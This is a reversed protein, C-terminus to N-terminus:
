WHKLALGLTANTTKRWGFNAIQNAYDESFKKQRLLSHIFSHAITRLKSKLPHMSTPDWPLKMERVVWKPLIIPKETCMRILQPFWVASPFFSVICIAKKVKDQLIKWLVKHIVSFPSFIFPTFQSCDVLFANVYTAEPDPKWSAFRKHKNNLYSAFLDIDFKHKNRILNITRQSLSWETMRNFCRSSKDARKNSIGSIFGATIQIRNHFCFAFIKRTLLDRFEHQSGHKLLCSLATTNDTFIKLKQGAISQKFSKLAYYVALLEKTNISYKQQNPTFLGNAEDHNDLSSGWGFGSSDTHLERDHKLDEM